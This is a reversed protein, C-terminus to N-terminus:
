PHQEAKRDKKIGNLAEEVMRNRREAIGAYYIVVVGLPLFGLGGITLSRLAYFPSWVSNLSFRYTSNYSTITLLYPGPRTATTYVVLGKQSPAFAVNVLAPGLIIQNEQDYPALLVTTSGERSSLVSLYMQKGTDVPPILYSNIWYPRSSTFDVGPGSGELRQPSKYFPMITGFALFILAMTTLAIGAARAKRFRM